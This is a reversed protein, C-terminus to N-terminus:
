LVPGKKNVTITSQLLSTRAQSTCVAIIWIGRIKPGSVIKNRACCIIYSNMDGSMNGMDSHKCHLILVEAPEDMVGNTERDFM